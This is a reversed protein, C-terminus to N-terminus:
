AYFRTRAFFNAEMLSLGADVFGIVFINNNRVGAYGSASSDYEVSLNLPITCRYDIIGEPVSWQWHYVAPVAVSDLVMAFSPVRQPIDIVQDDLIDFRSQYSLNRMSDIHFGLGVPTAFVEGVTALSGRSQKDLVVCIRVRCPGTNSPFLTMVSGSSTSAESALRLAGHMYLKVLTASDGVRQDLAPGQDIWSLSDSLVVGTDTLAHNVNFDVAGKEPLCRLHSLKRPASVHERLRLFQPGVGARDSRFSGGLDTGPSQFEFPDEFEDGQGHRRQYSKRNFDPEDRERKVPYYEPIRGGKRPRM